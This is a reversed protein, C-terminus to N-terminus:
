SVAECSYFFYSRLLLRRSNRVRSNFLLCFKQTERSIIRVPPMIDEDVVSRSSHRMRLQEERESESEAMMRHMRRREEREREEDDM